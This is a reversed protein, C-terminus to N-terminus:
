LKNKMTKDFCIKKSLQDNYKVKLKETDTKMRKISDMNSQIKEKLYEENNLEDLDTNYRYDDDNVGLNITSPKKVVYLLDKHMQLVTRKTPSGPPKKYKKQSKSRSAVTHSYYNKELGVDVFSRNSRDM